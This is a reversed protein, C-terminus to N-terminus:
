RTIEHLRNMKADDIIRTLGSPAPVPCPLPRTLDIREDPYGSITVESASTNFCSAAPMEPFITRMDIILMTNGALRHSV